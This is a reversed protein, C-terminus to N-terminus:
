EYVDKRHAVKVVIINPDLVQIIVRYERNLRIRLEDRGRLPLTDWGFPYPGEHSLDEILQSYILLVRKPLRLIEKSVSKTEIVTWSM